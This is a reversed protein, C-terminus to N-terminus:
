RILVVKTFLIEQGYELRILYVGSPLSGGDVSIAHTGATLTGEHLTRVVEGQLNCLELVTLGPAPISFRVIATTNFPNPYTEEIAFEIPAPQADSNISLATARLPIDIRPIDGFSIELRYVAEFVGFRHPFFNIWTQHPEGNTLEFEGGGRGIFFPTDEPIITQSSIHLVDGGINEIDVLQWDSYGPRVDNFTISDPSVSIVPTQIFHYAGIDARTQDPDLPSEPDGADICPSKTEDDEPFNDWVLHLDFEDRNEFLPLVDINGEEFSIYGDVHDAVIEEEGGQIDSYQVWIWNENCVWLQQPENGWLITNRLTVRVGGTFFIGGGRSDVSNYAITCNTIIPNSDTCYLGGGDTIDTSNFCIDCWWLASHGGRLYVGGGSRNDTENERIVCREMYIDADICAIGGGIMIAVNWRLLCNIISAVSEACHIGGGYENEGNQITFGYIIADWREVGEIWVCAAERSGDIITSNIFRRNGTTLLHSAVTIAKSHYDINEYYTGPAVLVTDGREAADIGAQITEYNDPIQHIVAFSSSVWIPILFALILRLMTEGQTINIKNLRLLL